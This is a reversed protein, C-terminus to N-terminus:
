EIILNQNYQKNDIILNVLYLGPNLDNIEIQLSQYGAQLTSNFVEIEKQGIANFVAIEVYSKKDLTFGINSYNDAPNPWVKFGISTHEIEDISVVTFEDDNFGLGKVFTFFTEQGFGLVFDEIIVYPLEYNFDDGGVICTPALSAINVISEIDTDFTMNKEETLMNNVM